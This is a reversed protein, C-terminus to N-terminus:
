IEVVKSSKEKGHGHYHEDNHGHKHDHDRHDINGKTKCDNCCFKKEFEKDTDKLTGHGEHM